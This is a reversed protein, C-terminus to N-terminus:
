PYVLYQLQSLNGIGDPLEEISTNRLDLSRLCPIHSFFENPINKLPHNYRLSLYILDPCQPEDPLVTINNCGLSIREVVRWKEAGPAETLGRRDGIMWKSEKEAGPAQAFYSVCTRLTDSLRDYSLKLPHYVHEEM